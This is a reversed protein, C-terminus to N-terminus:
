LYNDHAITFLLQSSIIKSLLHRKRQIQIIYCESLRNLIQFHKFYTTTLFNFTLLQELSFTYGDLVQYAM